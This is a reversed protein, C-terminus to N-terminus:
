WAIKRTVPTQRICRLPPSQKTGDPFLTLHDVLTESQRADITLAHGYELRIRGNDKDVISSWRVFGVKGDKRELQISKDNLSVVKAVTGNEGFYGRSGKGFSANVRNFLRVTDGATM